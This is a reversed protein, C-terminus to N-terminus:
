AAARARACVMSCFRQIHGTRRQKVVKARYLEYQTLGVDSVRLRSAQKGKGVVAIGGREQGAAYEQALRAQAMAEIEVLSAMAQRAHQVLDQGARKLRALRAAVEYGSAAQERVALVEAATKAEALQAAVHEVLAPLTQADDVRDILAPLTEAGDAAPQAVILDDM